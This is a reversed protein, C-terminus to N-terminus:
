HKDLAKEIFHGVIKVFEDTVLIDDHGQTLATNYCIREDASTGYESKLHNLMKESQSFDVLTDGQSHILLWSLTRRRLAYSTVAFPSYSELTGFAPAIFWGLYDPFHLNLLDLDYIGESMVVGKVADLLSRSPTLSATVMSSDLLISSLMHAGCSHGMLFLQTPDFVRGCGPPGEWTLLFELFNLIDETHSPHRLVNDRTEEHPTLRYNPVVVALGTHHVLNEALVSHEKKDESRWAGGHVFCITPRTTPDAISGPPLYLDFERLPNRLSERTYPIDSHIDM